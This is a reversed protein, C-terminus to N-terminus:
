KAVFTTPDGLGSALGTRSTGPSSSKKPYAKLLVFLGLFFSISLGGSTSLSTMFFYALAAQVRADGFEVLLFVRRLMLLFPWGLVLIFDLFTSKTSVNTLNDIIEQVENIVLPFDAFWGIAHNGFTQIAGYFGYFGYGLPNVISAALAASTLILRTATSTFQEIDMSINAIQVSVAWILVPVLLILYPLQKRRFSVVLIAVAVGVVAGKSGMFMLLVASMCLMSVLRIASYSRPREWILYFIFIFRGLLTAFHAAEETFGRARSHEYNAYEGQFIIARVGQPLINFVDSVFYGLLCFAIGFGAAFKIHQLRLIDLMLLPSMWVLTLIALTFFKTAYLTSWGFIFFSAVSGVLGFSL